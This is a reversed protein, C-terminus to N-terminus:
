LHHLLRGSGHVAWRLRVASRPQPIDAAILLADEVVHQTTFVIAGSLEGMSAIARARAVGGRAADIARHPPDVRSRDRHPDLAAADRAGPSVPAM